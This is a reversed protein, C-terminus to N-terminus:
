GGSAGGGFIRAEQSRSVHEILPGYAGTHYMYGVLRGDPGGVWLERQLGARELAAATQDLDQTWFGLHHCSASSGGEWLTGPVREILEIYPPGQQSYVGRMNIQRAGRPTSVDLVFEKIQRWGIGLVSMDQMTSELHPTVIGVHYFPAYKVEFADPPITM